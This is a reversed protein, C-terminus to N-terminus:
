RFSVALTTVGSTIAEFPTMWTMSWTMRGGEFQAERLWENWGSPPAQSEELGWGREAFSAITIALLSSVEVGVSSSPGDRATDRRRQFMPSPKRWAMWATATRASAVANANGTVAVNMPPGGPVAAPAGVVRNWTGTAPPMARKRRSEAAKWSRYSRGPPESHGNQSPHRTPMAGHSAM